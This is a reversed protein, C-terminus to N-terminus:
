AQRTSAANPWSPQVEVTRDGAVPTLYQVPISALPASGLARGLDGASRASFGPELSTGLTIAAVRDHEAATTRAWAGDGNTM